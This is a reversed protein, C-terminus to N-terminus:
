KIRYIACPLRKSCRWSILSCFCWLMWTGLCWWESFVGWTRELGPAAAPRSLHLEPSQSQAKNTTTKANTKLINRTEAFTNIKNKGTTKLHNPTFVVFSFFAQQLLWGLLHVSKQVTCVPTWDWFRGWAAPHGLDSWRESFVVGMGPNLIPSPKSESLMPGRVLGSLWPSNATRSFFVSSPM